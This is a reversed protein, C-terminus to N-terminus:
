EPIFVKSPMKEGNRFVYIRNCSPCRWVENIPKPIKLTDINDESLVKDWEEDTYVHLIIESPVQSNNLTRGCKCLFRAM